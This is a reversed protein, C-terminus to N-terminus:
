RATRKKSAYRSRGVSPPACHLAPLRRVQAPALQWALEAGELQLREESEAAVLMLQDLRATAVQQLEAQRQVDTEQAHTAPQEIGQPAHWRRQPAMEAVFEADACRLDSRQAGHIAATAGQEVVLLDGAVREPESPHALVLSAGQHPQQAVFHRSADVTLLQEDTGPAPQVFVPQQDNM